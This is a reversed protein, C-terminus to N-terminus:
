VHDGGIACLAFADALPSRKEPNFLPLDLDPFGDGTIEEFERTLKELMEPQRKELVEVWRRLDPKLRALGQYALRSLERVSSPGTEVLGEVLTELAILDPLEKSRYNGLQYPQMTLKFHDSTTLEDKVVAGWEGLVGSTIRHFALSSPTVGNVKYKKAKAKAESCLSEALKYTMHFPQNVRAFCIGACATLTKPLQLHYTKNLKEFGAATQKEFEELYQKVFPLALSGKVVATLDDGGVVLFRASPVLKGPFEVSKNLHDNHLFVSAASKAAKQTAEQVTQSFALLIEQFQHPKDKLKNKIQKLLLGLSNGDAHIVGVYRSDETEPIIADAFSEPDHHFAMPWNLNERDLKLKTELSGKHRRKALVGADLLEGAQIAVAPHGTLPARRALPTGIPFAPIQRNREMRLRRNLNLDADCPNPSTELGHVFTLGPATRQIFLSWFDRLKIAKDHDHFVMLFAGGARRAFRFHTGEELELKELAQDLLEGSLSDVLSSASVMDKLKNSQQIYHQISTAEFAYLTVGSSPNGTSQQSELTTSSHAM